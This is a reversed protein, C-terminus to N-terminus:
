CPDAAVLNQRCVSARRSGDDQADSGRRAKDALVVEIQNEIKDSSRIEAALSQFLNRERDKADDTQMSPRRWAGSYTTLRIVAVAGPEDEGDDLFNAQHQDQVAQFHYLFLGIARRMTLDMM